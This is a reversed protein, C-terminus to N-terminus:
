LAKPCHGRPELHVNVKTCISRLTAGCNRRLVDHVDESREPSSDVYLGLFSCTTRRNGVERGCCGTDCTTWFLVVPAHTTGKNGVIARCFTTFQERDDGWLFVSPDSHFLRVFPLMKNGSEMQLLGALMSKRSILDFAGVRGRVFNDRQPESCTRSADQARRCHTNSHPRRQKQQNPVNNAMTRAVLRRLVDGVVAECEVM